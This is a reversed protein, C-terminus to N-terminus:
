QQTAKNHQTPMMESLDFPVCSQISDGEENRASLIVKTNHKTIGRYCSQKQERTHGTIDM